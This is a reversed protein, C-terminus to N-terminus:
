TGGITLPLLTKVGTSSGLLLMDAGRLAFLGVSVVGPLQNIKQELAIPDNMDLRRVDLIANGNDTIFIKGGTQSVRLEPVGGLAALKRAVLSRAMPTVEIPLPFNGLQKVLKSEDAICIFKNSAQAIIKERTLAGGGGKILRLRHDAEDAGDVYIPLNGTDNLDHVPIRYRCLQKKTAESSAVAGDIRQKIKALEDIFYTVTSGTGIGVIDGPSIYEIAAQAAWRKKEAVSM